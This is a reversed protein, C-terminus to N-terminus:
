SAGRLGGPEELAVLSAAVAQRAAPHPRLADLVVARVRLWEPAVLVNVTPREDLEGLLKAQLEIQRQVRDVAKLALDGDGRKRADALVALTAANIARLQGLVDIAHAVDEAEAAAVLTAPLHNAAHRRVSAEVLRHQSAIRRNVLHGTALETDIARRDPHTCTTCIRPM